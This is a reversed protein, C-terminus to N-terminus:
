SAPHWLKQRTVKIFHYVLLIASLAQLVGTFEFFFNNPMVYTPPPFLKAMTDSDTGAYFLIDKLLHNYVGEFLGILCTTVILNVLLFTYLLPRTLKKGATIWNFALVPLSFFLIHLRWPTDYVIAGYIHHISTLIMLLNSYFRIKVFNLRDM